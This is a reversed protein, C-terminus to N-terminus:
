NILIKFVNGLSAWNIHGEVAFYVFLIALIVGVVTRVPSDRKQTMTAESEGRFGYCLELFEVGKM